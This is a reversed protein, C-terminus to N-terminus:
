YTWSGLHFVLFIILYCKTVEVLGRGFFSLGFLPHVFFFLPHMDMFFTSPGFFFCGFKDVPHVSVSVLDM